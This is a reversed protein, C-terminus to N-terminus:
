RPGSWKHRWGAGDWYWDRVRDGPRAPEDWVPRGATAGGGHSYITAPGTPDLREPERRRGFPWLRM